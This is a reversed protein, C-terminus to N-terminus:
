EAPTSWQRCLPGSDGYVPDMEPLAVDAINRDARPREKPEGYCMDWNQGSPYAGVVRFKSDAGLNKHAVGAPIVVVDGCEVTLRVGDDGGFQARAQGCYIGLVEHATSHYHHFGYIGNRWSGQWRNKSFLIEVAAAPDPAPLMLASKYVLLPLYENNPFIGDDKIHFQIVEPSQSIIDM